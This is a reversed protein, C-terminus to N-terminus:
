ITITILTRLLAKAGVTSLASARSCVFVKNYTIIQVDYLVPVFFM